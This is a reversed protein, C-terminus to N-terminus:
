QCLSNKLSGDNYVNPEEPAKEEARPPLAWDILAFDNGHKHMVNRANMQRDEESLEHLFQRALPQPQTKRVENWQKMAEDNVQEKWFPGHEDIGMAPPIGRLVAAPLYPLLKAIPSKGRIHCLKSCFAVLHEIGGSLAGCLTCAESSAYDLEFKKQDDATALTIVSRM